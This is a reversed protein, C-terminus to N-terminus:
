INGNKWPDPPDHYGSVISDVPFSIGRRVKMVSSEQNESEDHNQVFKGIDDAEPPLSGGGSDATDKVKNVEQGESFRNDTTANHDEETTESAQAAPDSMTMNKEEGADKSKAPFCHDTFDVKKTVM